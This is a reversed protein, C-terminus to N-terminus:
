SVGGNISATIGAEAIARDVERWLATGHLKQVFHHADTHNPDLQRAHDSLLRHADSVGARSREHLKDRADETLAGAAHEPEHTHPAPNKLQLAASVQTRTGQFADRGAGYKAVEGAYIARVEDVTLRVIAATFKGIENDVATRVEAKKM